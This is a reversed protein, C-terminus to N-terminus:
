IVFADESRVKNKKGFGLREGWETRNWLSQAHGWACVSAGLLWMIGRGMEGRETYFTEQCSVEAHLLITNTQIQLTHYMIFAQGFHRKGPNLTDTCDREKRSHKIWHNESLQFDPLLSKHTYSLSTFIMFFLVLICTLSANARNNRGLQCFDVHTEAPNVASLATINSPSPILQLLNASHPSRPRLWHQTYELLSLLIHTKIWYWHM